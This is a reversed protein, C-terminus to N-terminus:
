CAPPTIHICEGSGFAASNHGSNATPVRLGFYPHASHRVSEAKSKAQMPFLKDSRRVDDKGLMVNGYKHVATEPMLM